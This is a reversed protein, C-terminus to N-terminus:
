IFYGINLLNSQFDGPNCDFTIEIIKVEMTKNKQSLQGSTLTPIRLIPILSKSEPSVKVILM